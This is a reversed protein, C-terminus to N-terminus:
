VAAVQEWLVAHDLVTESTRKESILRTWVTRQRDTAFALAVKGQAASNHHFRTGPNLIVDIPSGGPVITDGAAAHAGQLLAEAAVDAEGRQLVQALDRSSYAWWSRAVASGPWVLTVAM